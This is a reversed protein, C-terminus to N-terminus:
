NQWKELRYASDWFLWELRSSTIFADRMLKREKESAQGAVEDTIEIARDVSKSFNEGAYTDIWDQYPNVKVAKEYIYNGVERYIWFCPLVATVGQEYSRHSVSALLFNTYFSCAPSKEEKAAINFKKFYVEHLAKEVITVEQAFKWFDLMIRPSSSRSGLVGLARGFDELYLSDQYIYFEFKKQELTGKLLEQNFPLELISNFIKDISKWLSDTFKM